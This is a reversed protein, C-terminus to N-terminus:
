VRETVSNDNVNIGNRIESTNYVQLYGMLRGKGRMPYPTDPRCPQSRTRIPVAASKIPAAMPANRLICSLSVRLLRHAHMSMLAKVGNKPKVGSSCIVIDVAATHSM